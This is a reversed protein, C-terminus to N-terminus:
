EYEDGYEDFVLEIGCGVAFQLLPLNLTLGVLPHQGRLKTWGPGSM